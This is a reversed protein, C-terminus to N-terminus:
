FCQLCKALKAIIEDRAGKLEYTWYTYSCVHTCVLDLTGPPATICLNATNFKSKILASWMMLKEHAGDGQMKAKVVCEKLWVNVKQMEKHDHREEYYMVQAAFADRMSIPAAAGEPAACTALLRFGPVIVYACLLDRRTLVYM